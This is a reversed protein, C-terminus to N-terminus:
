YPGGPVATPARNPPAVGRNELLTLLGSQADATVLDPRDDGNVDLALVDTPVRGVGFDIPSGFTGGGNGLLLSISNGGADAVALDVRGDGNFDAVAIGQPS